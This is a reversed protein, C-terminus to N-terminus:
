LLLLNIFKNESKINNAAIDKTSKNYDAATIYENEIDTLKADYDTKKKKILNSVDCIKNEVSTSAVNTAVDNVSPVKGEIESIKVNYDTKKVLGNIDPIKKDADSKKKKELDSKARDYKTKLVFGSNDIDNVKAVLKDYVTNKVVNNNEVNSLKSLDVSVSKLKDVDIKDIEVKLKALDSKVALKSADVGTANKLDTKTAYNSLNVKVNTDRWFTRYPKPFYQSMKYLTKKILGVILHIIM